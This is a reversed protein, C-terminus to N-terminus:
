RGAHRRLDPAQPEVSLAKGDRLIAHMVFQADLGRLFRRITSVQPDLSREIRSVSAQNVQLRRAMEVQTVGLAQRLVGLPLASGDKVGGGRSPSSRQLSSRADQGQPRAARSLTRKRRKM